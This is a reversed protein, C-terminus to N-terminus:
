HVIRMRRFRVMAGLVVGTAILAMPFGVLVQVLVHSKAFPYSDDKMARLAQEFAIAFIVLAPVAIMLFVALRIALEYSPM